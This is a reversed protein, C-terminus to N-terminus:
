GAAEADAPDRQPLGDSAKLLCTVDLRASAPEAAREDEVLRAGILGLGTANGADKSARELVGQGEPPYELGPYGLDYGLTM